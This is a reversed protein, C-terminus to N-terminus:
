VKVTLEVNVGPLIEGVCHTLHHAPDPGVLTGVRGRSKADEYIARAEERRKITGRVVRDGVRMIMEDVAGDASLPFTYVAEIKDKRPNHFLQTVSVRAVFGSIETKVSTHELPCGQGPKGDPEIVTLSGQGQTDAFCLSSFALLILVFAPLAAQRLFRSTVM